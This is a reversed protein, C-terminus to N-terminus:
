AKSGSAAKTKKAPGKGKAGLRKTDKPLEKVKQEIKMNEPKVKFMRGVQYVPLTIPPLGARRSADAITERLYPFIVVPGIQTAIKALESDLDVEEGEAVEVKISCVAYVSAQGSDPDVIDVGLLVGVENPGVRTADFTFEPAKATVPDEDIAEPRRYILHLLEVPGPFIRLRGIDPTPQKHQLDSMTAM